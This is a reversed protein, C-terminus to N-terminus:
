FNKTRHLHLLINICVPTPLLLDITIFIILLYIIIGSYVIEWVVTLRSKSVGTCLLICFQKERLTRNKKRFKLSEHFDEIKDRWTRIDILGAGIVIWINVICSIKKLFFRVLIVGLILSLFEM